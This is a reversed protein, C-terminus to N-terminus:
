KGDHRAARKKQRTKSSAAPLHVPTVEPDLDFCVPKGLQGLGTHVDPFAKLVWELTMKAPLSSLSTNPHPVDFMRSAPIPEPPKPLNSAHSNDPTPLQVPPESRPTELTATSRSTGLHILKM